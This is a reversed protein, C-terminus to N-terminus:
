NRMIHRRNETAYKYKIDKRKKIGISKHKNIMVVNIFKNIGGSEIILEKMINIFNNNEIV